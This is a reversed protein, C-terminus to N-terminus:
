GEFVRPHGRRALCPVPLRLHLSQGCRVHSVLDSISRDAVAAQFRDTHTVIWNVMYGGYSGGIVGLPADDWGEAALVQDVGAMLDLYDHHGWDNDIASAIESM